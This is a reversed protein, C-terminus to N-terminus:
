APGEQTCAAHLERLAVRAIEAAEDGVDSQQMLKRAVRAILPDAERETLARVEDQTPAIQTQDSLKLRLLRATSSELVGALRNSTEIGISGTLTLRLLSENVRDTSTDQLRSELESLVSDDAFDFTLENWQLKATELRTVQPTGGRRTEVILVNGPDHGGGKPFRDMEPTGSFWAKESVQKTGHWDGLAIYEIEADPLRSLDILGAPTSGEEDDDWQGDFAQTSGHAAVIRPKDPPLKRYVDTDRLWATPDDSVTRRLLPCPLIVASDLELPKLELQVSLNPALDSQENLFFEQEWV